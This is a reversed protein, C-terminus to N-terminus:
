PYRMSTDLSPKMIVATGITTSPLPPNAAPPSPPRPPATPLPMPPMPNSERGGDDDDRRQVRGWRAGRPRGGDHQALGSQGWRRAVFGAGGSRRRPRRAAQQVPPPLLPMCDEEELRRSSKEEWNRRLQDLQRWSPDASEPAPGASERDPWVHGGRQRRRRGCQRRHRRGGGGARDNARPWPEASPPAPPPSAPLPLSYEPYQSCLSRHPFNKHSGVLLISSGSRSIRSFSRSHALALLLRRQRALVSEVSATHVSTEWRLARTWHASSTHQYVILQPERNINYTITPLLAM